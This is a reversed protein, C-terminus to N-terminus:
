IFIRRKNKLRFYQLHSVFFKVEKGQDGYLDIKIFNLLTQNGIIKSRGCIGNFDM